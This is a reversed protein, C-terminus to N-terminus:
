NIDHEVEGVGFCAHGAVVEQPFPNEGKHHVHAASGDENSEEKEYSTVVVRCGCGLGDSVDVGVV